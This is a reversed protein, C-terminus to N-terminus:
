NEGHMEGIKILGQQLATDIESCLRNMKFRYFSDLTDRSQQNIGTRIEKYATASALLSEFVVKKPQYASPNIRSLAVLDHQCIAAPNNELEGSAAKHYRSSVSSEQCAVSFFVGCLAMVPIISRSLPQKILKYDKWLM